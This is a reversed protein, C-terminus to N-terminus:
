TQEIDTEQEVERPTLGDVINRNSLKGTLLSVDAGKKLELEILFDIIHHRIGTKRGLVIFMQTIKNANSLMNAMSHCEFYKGFVGLFNDM